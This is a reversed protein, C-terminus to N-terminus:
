GAGGSVREVQAVLREEVAGPEVISVNWDSVDGVERSFAKAAMRAWLDKEPNFSLAAFVRALFGEHVLRM